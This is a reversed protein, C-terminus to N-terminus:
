EQKGKCSGAEAMHSQLEAMMVEPHDNAAAALGRQWDERPIKDRLLTISCACFGRVSQEADKRELGRRVCGTEISQQFSAIDADTFSEPMSQASAHVAVAATMAAAVRLLLRQPM